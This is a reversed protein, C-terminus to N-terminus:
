VNIKIINIVNFGEEEKVLFDYFYGVEIKNYEDESVDFELFLGEHINVMIWFKDETAEYFKKTVLGETEYISDKSLLYKLLFIFGGLGIIALVM